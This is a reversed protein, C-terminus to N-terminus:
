RATANLLTEFLTHVVGVVQAAAQYAQQYRIMNAAEEDLNVGSNALQADEANQLVVNQADLSAHIQHTTSGVGAVLEGYSGLISLTGGDLISRSQLEGLKLGNGNDGSAGFNAELTFRDGPLPEGSITFESGNVVIPDGDTYTFPGAGDVTYSTATTFVIQATSLLGPDTVDVVSPRSISADGKNANSAITRAPGAMAIAQADAVQLRISSAAKSVPRILLQDGAAPAGGVTISLGEAVFPDAPTGAGTMPIAAGGPSRVLSYAAGDFNLIYEDGTLASLDSVAAAATGSGTNLGSSLVQPASM